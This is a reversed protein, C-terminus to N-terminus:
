QGAEAKRATTEKGTLYIYEDGQRTVEDSIIPLAKLKNDVKCNSGITQSIQNGPNKAEAAIESYEVL